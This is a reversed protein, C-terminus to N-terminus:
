TVTWTGTIKDVIWETSTVAVVRMFNGVVNSSFNGGSATVDGGHRITQGSQAAVNITQADHVYFAFVDGPNAVELTFNVAGAAGMNMFIANNDGAVVSYNATKNKISVSIGGASISPVFTCNALTANAINGGTIDVDWKEQGALLDALRGLFGRTVDGAM